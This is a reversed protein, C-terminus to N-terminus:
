IRAAPLNNFNHLASKVSDYVAPKGAEAEGMNETCITQLKTLYNDFHEPNLAAAAAAAATTAEPESPMRAHGIISSIVNTRLSEFYNNLKANRRTM